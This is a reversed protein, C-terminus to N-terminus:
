SLGRKMRERMRLLLFTEFTSQSVTRCSLKLDRNLSEDLWCAYLRPNGFKVIDQILHVILHRKPLQLRQDKQTHTLHSLWKDMAKQQEAPKMVRTAGDWTM